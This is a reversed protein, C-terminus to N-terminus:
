VDHAEASEVLNTILCQHTSLENAMAKAISHITEFRQASETGSGAGSSGLECYGVIASLQNALRHALM